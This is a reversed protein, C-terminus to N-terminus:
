SEDAAEELDIHTNRSLLETATIEGKLYAEVNRQRPADDAGAVKVHEGNDAILYWTVYVTNKGGGNVLELVEGPLATYLGSVTVKGRGYTQRLTEYERSICHRTKDWRLHAVYPVCTAPNSQAKFNYQYAETRMKTAM